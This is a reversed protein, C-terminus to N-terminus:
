DTRSQTHTCLWGAMLCALERSTSSTHICLLRGSCAASRSPRGIGAVNAPSHLFASRCVVTLQCSQSGAPMAEIAGCTHMTTSVSAGPQTMLWPPVMAVIQWALCHFGKPAGPSSILLSSPAAVPACSHWSTGGPPVQHCRVSQRQPHLCPQHQLLYANGAPQHPSAFPMWLLGTGHWRHSVQMMMRAHMARQM